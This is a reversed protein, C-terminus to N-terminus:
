SLYVVKRIEVRSNSKSSTRSKELWCCFLVVQLSGAPLLSSKFFTFYFHDNLNIARRRALKAAGAETEPNILALLALVGALAALPEVPRTRGIRVSTASLVHREASQQTCWAIQLTICVGVTVTLLCNQAFVTQLM